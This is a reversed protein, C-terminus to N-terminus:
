ENFAELRLTTTSYKAPSVASTFNAGFYIYCPSTAALWTYEAQQIGRVSDVVIDYDDGNVFNTTNSGTINVTAKDKMWIYCPFGSGGTTEWLRYPFGATGQNITQAAQTTSPQVRWCMSLSTSSLTPVYVTTSSGVLGSPDRQSPQGLYKPSADAATNDTYIQLASGVLTTTTHLELYVDSQKWKTSGVSVGSWTISTAASGDSINKLLASFTVTGGTTISISATYTSRTISSTFSAFSFSSCVAVACVALVLSILKRM